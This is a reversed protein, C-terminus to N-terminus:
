WLCTFARSAERTRRSLLEWHGVRGAITPVELIEASPRSLGGVAELGDDISGESSEVKQQVTLDRVKRGDCPSIYNSFSTTWAHPYAEPVDNRRGRAIRFRRSL